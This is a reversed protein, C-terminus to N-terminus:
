ADKDGEKLVDKSNQETAFQVEKKDLAVERLDCRALREHIRDELNFLDNEKQKIVDEKVKSEEIIEQGKDIELHKDRAYSVFQQREKFLRMRNEELDLAMQERKEIDKLRNDVLKEKKLVAEERMGLSDRLNNLKYSDANIKKKKQLEELQHDYEAKVRQTKEQSKLNDIKIEKEKIQSDLYQNMEQKTDKKVETKEEEM